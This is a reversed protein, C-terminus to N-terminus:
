AWLQKNFWRQFCSRMNDRLNRKYSHFVPNLGSQGTEIGTKSSSTNRLHEKWFQSSIRKKINLSKCGLEPVSHKIKEPTTAHFSLTCIQDNQSQNNELPARRQLHCIRENSSVWVCYLTICSSVLHSSVLCFKVLHYSVIHSSFICFLALCYIM